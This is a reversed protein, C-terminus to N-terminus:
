FHCSRWTPTLTRTSRLGISWQRQRSYGREESHQARSRLLEDKTKKSPQFDFEQDSLMRLRNLFLEVDPAQFSRGLVIGELQEFTGVVDYVGGEGGILREIGFLASWAELQFFTAIRAEHLLWNKRTITITVSM